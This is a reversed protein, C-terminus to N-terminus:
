CWNIKNTVWLQCNYDHQWHTELHEEFHIYTVTRDGTSWKRWLIVCTVTDESLDASLTFASILTEHNIVFVPLKSEQILVLSQLEHVSSEQIRSKQQNILHHFGKLVTRHSSSISQETSRKGSTIRYVLLLRHLLWVLKHNVCYMELFSKTVLM